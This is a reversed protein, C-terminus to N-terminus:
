ENEFDFLGHRQQIVRRKVVQGLTTVVLQICFKSSSLAQIYGKGSGKDSNEERKSCKEEVPELVQTDNFHCM